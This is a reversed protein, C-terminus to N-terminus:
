CTNKWTRRRWANRMDQELGVVLFRRLLNEVLDIGALEVEILRGLLIGGILGGSLLTSIDTPIRDIGEDVFVRRGEIVKGFPLNRTKHRTIVADM